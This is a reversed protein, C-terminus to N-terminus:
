ICHNFSLSARSARRTAFRVIEDVYLTSREFSTACRACPSRRRCEFWFHCVPADRRHRCVRTLIHLNFACGFIHVRLWPICSESHSHCMGSLGSPIHLIFAKTNRHNTPQLCKQHFRRQSYRAANCSAQSRVVSILIQTMSFCNLFYSTANIAGRWKMGATGLCLVLIFEYLQVEQSFLGWM